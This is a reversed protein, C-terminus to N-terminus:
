ILDGEETCLELIDAIQNFSLQLEDNIRTLPLYMNGNVAFLGESCIISNLYKEVIQVKVSTEEFDLALALSWPLCEFDSFNLDIDTYSYLKGSESDDIEDNEISWKGRGAIDCLVGLCCYSDERRLVYTTQKYKGSRLAEVWKQKIEQNM